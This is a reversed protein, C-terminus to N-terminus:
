RKAKRKKTREGTSRPRARKQLRAELEELRKKLESVEGKDDKADQPMRLLQRISDIPSTAAAQLDSLGSRFSQQVKGYADFASKLYWSLFDRGVQDSAVILQRMLELPLGASGEKNDEVIIQMLTPRTLDEGTKADVVRVEYGKRILTAIEELNVYRSRSTDYLRRNEYKKIIHPASM